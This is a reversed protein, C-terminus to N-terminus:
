YYDTKIEILSPGKFELAQYYATAFDDTKEVKAGFAGYAKALACFDPNNLATAIRRNPYHNQQHKEITGYTGNNIVLFLIDLDYQVATALEQGNMM